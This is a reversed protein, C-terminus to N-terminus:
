TTSHICRSSPLRSMQCSSLGNWVQLVLSLYTISALSVEWDDTREM